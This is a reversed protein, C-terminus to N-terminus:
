ALVQWLPTATTVGLHRAVNRAWNDDGGAWIRGMDAISQDLNYHASGGSLILALQRYLRYWGYDESDFVAIGAGLTPTWGPLVLDGPNNAVTPIAGPIGFGEAYAVARAFRKIPEPYSTSGPVYDDTDFYEGTTVTATLPRYRSWLYALVLALGIGITTNRNM